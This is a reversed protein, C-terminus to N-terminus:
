KHLLHTAWWAVSEAAKRTVEDRAEATLLFEPTVDTWGETAEANSAEVQTVNGKGEKGHKGGLKLRLGARTCLEYGAREYTLRFIRTDAM